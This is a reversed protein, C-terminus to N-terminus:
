RRDVNITRQHTALLNSFTIVIVSQTLMVLQSSREIGYPVGIEIARQIM